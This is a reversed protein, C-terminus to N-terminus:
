IKKLEGEALSYSYIHELRTRLLEIDNIHTTTIFSQIDPPIIHYIVSQRVNDLEAMVDDLILIFNNGFKKRLIEIQALKLAITIIRQQGQSAVSRAEYGNFLIAMDDRHIGILSHGAIIEKQQAGQIRSMVAAEDMGDFQTLYGTKMTGASGFFDDYIVSISESVMQILERRAIYIQYALTALRHNWLELEDTLITNYSESLQKLLSNKQALCKTYDALNAMYQSDLMTLISDIYDRRTSPSGRVIEMDQASFVVGRFTGWYDKHSRIFKHDKKIKKSGLANLEIGVSHTYESNGIEGRIYGQYSGHRILEKDGARRMSRLTALYYIAEIISTKGEGNDGVICNIGRECTYDIHSFNRFNTLQINQLYM